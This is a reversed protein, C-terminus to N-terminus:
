RGYNYPTAENYNPGPNGSQTTTYVAQGGNSQFVRAADNPAVIQSGDAGTWRTQGRIADSRQLAIQDMVKSRREYGKMLIDGAENPHNLSVSSSPAHFQILQDNGCLAGANTCSVSQSLQLLFKVDREFTQDPAQVAMTDTFFGGLPQNMATCIYLARCERGGSRQTLEFAKTKPSLERSAVIRADSIGLQPLQQMTFRIMQDPSINGAFGHFVIRSVTTLGDPSTLDVGCITENSRWGRPLDFRFIRGQQADVQPPQYAPALPQAAPQPAPATPPQQRSLQYTVGNANLTLTSGDFHGTLPITQGDATWQGALSQGSFSGSLPYDRGNFHMQGRLGDGAPSLDVVLPGQPTDAVFNGALDAARSAGALALAMSLSLVITRMM